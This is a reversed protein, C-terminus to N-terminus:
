KLKVNSFAKKIKSVTEIFADNMTVKLDDISIQLKWRTYWSSKEIMQIQEKYLDDFDKANPDLPKLVEDYFEKVQINQKM